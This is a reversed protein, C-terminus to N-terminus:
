QQEKKNLYFQELRYSIKQMLSRAKLLYFGETTLHNPSFVSNIEGNRVILPNLQAANELAKQMRTWDVYIDSDVLINKYDIGLAKLLMYNSYAFGKARYLLNDAKNDIYSPSEERIHNELKTAIKHLNISINKLIATLDQPTKYIIISGDSLSQNYKILLKRAKRYQSHSSPAPMLKNETSFMWITPPYHLLKNAKTLLQEDKTAVNPEWRESLTQSINSIADMIGLQFEPMNDLFYSPYFFPLNPTWIKDNVERRILYSITEITASREQKPSSIEVSTDTDINNIILGGLPYYLFIISCITIAIIRWSSGFIKIINQFPLLRIQKYAKKLLLSLQTLLEKLKQTPM